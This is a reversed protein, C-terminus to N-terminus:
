KVPKQSTNPYRNSLCNSVLGGFLDALGTRGPIQSKGIPHTTQENIKGM